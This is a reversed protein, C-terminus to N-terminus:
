GSGHYALRRANGTRNASYRRNTSFFQRADFCASSPYEAHAPTSAMYFKAPKDKNDSAFVVQKTGRGVYLGDGKKMKFSKGDATIAGSNAICIIGLERRDLFVDSGFDKGGKLQLKKAVPHAGGFVVRDTHTYCLSIDDKIFVKDFLFHDRMKCTDYFKVDEHHEAYRKELKM